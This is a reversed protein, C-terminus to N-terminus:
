LLIMKALLAIWIVLSGALARWERNEWYVKWSCRRKEESSVPKLSPFFSPVRKRYEGYERSFLREMKEKEKKILAPYFLLFYCFLLIAVWLSRSATIVAVGILVNGLYLPNRTYRYPGSITLEKDKRLHGAAWARLLLGAACVALSLLFSFLSPEALIIALIAALLGVRVRWRSAIKTLRFETM